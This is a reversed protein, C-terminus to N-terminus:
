SCELCRLGQTVHGANLLFIDFPIWTFSFTVLIDSKCTRHVLTRPVLSCISTCFDIWAAGLRLPSQRHSSTSRWTWTSAEPSRLAVHVRGLCLLRPVRAVKQSKEDWLSAAHLSSAELTRSPQFSSSPPALVGDLEVAGVVLAEPWNFEENEM